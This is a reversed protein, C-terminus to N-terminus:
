PIKLEVISQVSNSRTALIPLNLDNVTRLINLIIDKYSTRTLIHGQQLETYIHYDYGEIITLANTETISPANMTVAWYTVHIAADSPFELIDLLENSVIIIHRKGLKVAMAIIARMNYGTEGSNMISSVRGDFNNSSLPKTNLATSIDDVGHYQYPIWCSTKSDNCLCAALTIPFGTMAGSVDIGFIVDSSSTIEAVSDKIGPIIPPSLIAPNKSEATSWALKVSSPLILQKIHDIHSKNLYEMYRDSDYKHFTKAHRKLSLRPVANYNVTTWKKDAILQETVALYKRLPVLYQTRLVKRSVGMLKAIKANAAYRRDCSSGENPTWKSALSILGPVPNTFSIYDKMLQQAFLAIVDPEAPTDMLVLLDKWYGCDPIHRILCRLESSKSYSMWRIAQHFIKREGRGVIIDNRRHRRLYFIIQIFQESDHNWMTEFMADTYIDHPSYYFLNCLLPIPDMCKLVNQFTNFKNTNM